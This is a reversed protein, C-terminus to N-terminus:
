ETWNVKDNWRSWFESAGVTYSSFSEQSKLCTGAELDAISIEQKRNQSLQDYKDLLRACLKDFVTDQMMSTNQWYYLYSAVLYLRAALDLSVESISRVRM